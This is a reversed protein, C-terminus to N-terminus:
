RVVAVKRRFEETRGDTYQAIIRCFYTGPLVTLGADNSGRWTDSSHTGAARFADDAIVAVREGTITFLEISVRADGDLTFGITTSGDTDPNFPNPYNTFSEELTGAGVSLEASRVPYAGSIRPWVQTALNDDYASLFTSDALSIVYNGAAADPRLDAQLKLSRVENRAMTFGSAAQMVITDGSPVTDTALSDDDILWRISSFLAGADVPAYGSRTRQLLDARLAEVTVDGQAEASSYDLDATLLTVSKQGPAALRVRGTSHVLSPRGAPLILDIISSSFPLTQECATSVQLSPSATTDTADRVAIGDPALGMVFHDSVADRDVDALLDLSVTDGPAILIGTDSLTWITGVSFPDVPRFAVTGEDLSWGVRDLVSASTLPYGLSDSMNVTISPLRVPSYEDTADYTLELNLLTVSDSGAVISSPAKSNVCIQVPLAPQKLRALGSVMPFATGTALRLTDTVVALESGSSLDRAVMSTSDAIHVRFGPPAANSDVSVVVDVDDSEGAHITIPASLDITPSGVSLQSQGLYGVIVDNRVLYLEDCVQDATVGQGLSDQLGLTL